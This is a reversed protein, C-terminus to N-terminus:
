KVIVRGKMFDHIECDYRHIGIKRFKHKYGENKHLIQSIFKKEKIQHIENDNNIWIISSGKNITIKKPRFAFDTINVIKTKASSISPISIALAILSILVLLSSIKKM